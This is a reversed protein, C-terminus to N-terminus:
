SDPQQVPDEACIGFNLCLGRSGADHAASIDEANNVEDIIREVTHTREIERTYQNTVTNVADQGSEIAAESQNEVVENMRETGASFFDDVFNYALFAFLIAFAVVGAKWAM